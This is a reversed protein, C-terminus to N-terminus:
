KAKYKSVIVFPYDILTGGFNVIILALILIEYASKTKKKKAWKKVNVLIHANLGISFLLALFYLIAIIKLTFKDIPSEFLLEVGNIEEIPQAVPSEQVGSTEKEQTM